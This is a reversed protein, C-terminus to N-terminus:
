HYGDGGGDPQKARSQQPESDAPSASPASLSRLRSSVDAAPTDLFGLEVERTGSCTDIWAASTEDGPRSYAFVWLEDGPELPLGCAATSLATKLLSVAGADGKFVALPSFVAQLHPGHTEEAVVASESVSDIRVQMVHEAAALYDALLQPACRCAAAPGAWGVFCIALACLTLTHRMRGATM